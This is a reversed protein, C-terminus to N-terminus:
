IRYAKLLARAGSTSINVASTDNTSKALVYGGQVAAVVLHAIADVPTSAPYVGEDIAKLIQARVQELAFQFYLQLPVRLEDDCFAKENSLRGLKCGNLGVRSKALYQDLKEVPSFMDSEFLELLDSKLREAVEDLATRALEKKGSFHHYLSGQGAGSRALVKGPSMAEYGVEFLLDTAAQVIKERKSTKTM